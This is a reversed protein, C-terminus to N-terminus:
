WIKRLIDPLAAVYEREKYGDANRVDVNAIWYGKAM